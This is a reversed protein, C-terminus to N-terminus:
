NYLMNTIFALSSFFFLFCSIPIHLTLSPISIPEPSAESLFDSKEGGM